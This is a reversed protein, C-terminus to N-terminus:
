YRSWIFCWGQTEPNYQKMSETILSKHQQSLLTMEPAYEHKIYLPYDDGEGLFLVGKGLQHKGSWGLQAVEPLLNKTEPMSTQLHSNM